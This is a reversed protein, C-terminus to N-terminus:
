DCKCGCRCSYVCVCLSSRLLSFCCALLQVATFCSLGHQCIFCACWCRQQTTVWVQQTACPQLTNHVHLAAVAECASAREVQIFNNRQSAELGGATFSTLCTSSQLLVAASGASWGWGISLHTLQPVGGGAAADGAAAATTAAEQGLLAQGAAPQQQKPQADATAAAASHRRHVM